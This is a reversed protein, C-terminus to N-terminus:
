AASGAPLLGQERLVSIIIDKVWAEEDNQLATVAESTMRLGEAESAADGSAEPATISGSFSVRSTQRIGGVIGRLFYDDQERALIQETKPAYQAVIKDLDEGNTPMGTVLPIRAWSGDEFDVDLHAKEPDYSRVTYTFKYPDM